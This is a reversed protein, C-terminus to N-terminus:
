HFALPNAINTYKNLKLLVTGVVHIDMQVLVPLCNEDDTLWITLDDKGKFMRGTEVIPHIKHCSIKGFKTRITEKGKYRLRLPFIEDSFFINVFIVEDKNINTFDIRRLYYFVSTLDLLKGPVSHVGSLKSNVTNNNRNYIIENYHKYRGESINRIQKNPLNTEKDFWSEYVDRVKYIKDALGTTQGVASAYFVPKGDYTADTISLTTTGGVIFGYRIQFSLTEGSVYATNPKIPPNVIEQTNAYLSKLLILLLLIIRVKM